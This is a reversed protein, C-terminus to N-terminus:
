PEHKSLFAEMSSDSVAAGSDTRSFTEEWAPAKRRGKYNNTTQGTDWLAPNLLPHQSLRLPPMIDHSRPSNREAGNHDQVNETQRNRQRGM